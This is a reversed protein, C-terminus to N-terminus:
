LTQSTVVRVWVPLFFTELMVVSASEGGGLYKRGFGWFLCWCGFILGLHQCLTRAWLHSFLSVAWKSWCMNHRAHCSALLIIYWQSDQIVDDCQIGVGGPRVWPWQTSKVVVYLEFWPIWEQEFIEFLPRSFYQCEFFSSSMNSRNFTKLINPVSFGTGIQAILKRQFYKHTELFGLWLMLMGEVVQGTPRNVLSRSITYKEFAALLMELKAHKPNRNSKWWLPIAEFINACFCYWLEFNYSIQHTSLYKIDTQANISPFWPM